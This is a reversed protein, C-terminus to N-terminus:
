PHVGPTPVSSCGCTGAQGCRVPSHQEHGCAACAPQRPLPPGDLDRPTDYTLGGRM